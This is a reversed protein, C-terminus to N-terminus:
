GLGSFDTPGPRAPKPHMPGFNGDRTGVPSSWRSEMKTVRNKSIVISKMPRNSYEWLYSEIRMM